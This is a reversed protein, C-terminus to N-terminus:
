FITRLKKIINKKNKKDQVLTVRGFSGQGLNAIKQLQKFPVKNQKASAIMNMRANYADTALQEVKSIKRM